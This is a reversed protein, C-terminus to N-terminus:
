VGPADLIRGVIETADRSLGPTDAIRQLQQLILTQRAEDFARWTEFVGMLRATTQPNKPDLELLWDTVLRYGAGDARHFGALNGAAFSGLVARFRNPNAANFAAHATLAAVREAAVAGPTRAAQVAFWKDIVRGDHQWTEYFRALAADAAQEKVLLSLAQMSETMNDAADFQRQAPGAGDRSTMLSLLRGRLARKGAASADPTYPGPVTLGAYGDDLAGGLHGAFATDFVKLAADIRDPDPRGANPDGGEMHKFVEEASPAGLALAKFAPDLRTDALTLRLAELLRDDPASNTGNALGAIADLVLTRGVEWRNFPDPDHAMLALREDLTLPQARTAVM